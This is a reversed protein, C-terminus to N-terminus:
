CHIARPISHTIIGCVNIVIQNNFLPPCCM